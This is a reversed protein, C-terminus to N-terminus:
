NTLMIRTIFYKEGWEYQVDGKYKKVVREVIKLGLGEHNKKTSLFSNGQKKPELTVSNKLTITIFDHVMAVRLIIQKEVGENAAEIANDLINAFLTTIDVNRIFSFDVMAIKIDDTIGLAHMTQVKDNLIINLMKNSTFYEQGLQNLMDHVDKAYQCGETNKQEDYLHEMSQIHNRIDHILKRTNDYKQELNEYYAVQIEQQQKHLNLENELHNNKSIVDFVSTFYFNLGILMAINITFLILNEESLYIELFLMMSFLNVISFLPLIFSSIMQRRTINENHKRQIIGILIRLVMFEIFRVTIVLVIFYSQSQSFYIFGKTFLIQIILTALFDTMYIAIIFGIYYVIYLRLNNYLYHGIVPIILMFLLNILGNGLVSVALLVIIYGGVILNKKMKKVMINTGIRNMSYFISYLIFTSGLMPIIVYILFDIM